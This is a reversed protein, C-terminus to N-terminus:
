RRRRRSRLFFLFIITFDMGEKINETEMESFIRKKIERFHLDWEEDENEEKKWKCDHLLLYYSAAVTLFSFSSLPSPLISPLLSFEFSTKKARPCSGVHWVMRLFVFPHTLLLFLTKGRKEKKREKRKM